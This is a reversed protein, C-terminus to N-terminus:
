YGRWGRAMVRLMERAEHSIPLETDPGIKLAEEHSGTRSEADEHPLIADIRNRASMRRWKEDAEAGLNALLEPNLFGSDVYLRGFDDCTGGDRGDPDFARRVGGKAHEIAGIRDEPIGLERMRRQVYSEAVDQWERAFRIAHEAPDGPIAPRQSPPTGIMAPPDPPPKDTM